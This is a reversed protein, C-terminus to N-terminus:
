ELTTTWHTKNIAMKIQEKIDEKMNKIRAGVIYTMNKNKDFEELNTKNFM